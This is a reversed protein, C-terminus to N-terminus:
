MGSSKGNVRAQIWALTQQIESQNRVIEHRTQDINTNIEHLEVVARDMCDKLASFHNNALSDQGKRLKDMGGGRWVLVYIIVGLLAIVAYPSAANLIIFLESIFTLM